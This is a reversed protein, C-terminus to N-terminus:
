LPLWILDVRGFGLHSLNKWMRLLDLIPYVYILSKRVELSKKPPPIFNVYLM